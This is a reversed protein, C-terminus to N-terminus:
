RPSILDSTFPLVSENDFECRPCEIEIRIDLRPDNDNIARRLTLSDKGILGNILELSQDFDFVEGNVGIIHKALRYKYVPNSTKKRKGGVNLVTGGRGLKMGKEVKKQYVREVYNDIDEEDSGRLLRFQVNLGCEPLDVSFPEKADDPTTVTELDTMIDITKKFKLNCNSCSFPFTYEGGYSESRLAMFAYYRDGTLLETSKFPLELCRDLVESILSSSSGFGSSFIEEIETDWLYCKVKGEPLQGEYFIGKSPLTISRASSSHAM